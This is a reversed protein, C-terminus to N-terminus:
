KIVGHLLQTAFGDKLRSISQGDAPNFGTAAVNILAFYSQCAVWVDLDARFTGEEVGQVFLQEVLWEYRESHARVRGRLAEPLHHRCFLFTRVFHRGRELYDLHKGLVQSLKEAAPLDNRELLHEIDELVEEIGMRCVEELAADKSIFYYYLSGQRIGLEDAIHRTSAGHYGRLSFVRAAADVADERRKHRPAKGAHNDAEAM